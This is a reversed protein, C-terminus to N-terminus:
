QSETPPATSQPEQSTFSSYLKYVKRSCVYSIFIFVGQLGNLVISVYRLASVDVAGDIVGLVWFAGTMSSLKAYVFLNKRDERRDNSQLLAVSHIKVVTITFFVLNCVVVLMLPAVMSVRQNLTYNPINIATFVRFMQFSCIFTWTFMWLWLFHTSVGVATCLWSPGSIHSTALLSAHALLLSGSLFMNRKGARSRLVPFLSYTLLTALLCTMSVSMVVLTLIYEVTWGYRQGSRKSSTLSDVLTLKTDLLQRCVNLVDDGDLALM